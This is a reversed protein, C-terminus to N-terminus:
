SPKKELYTIKHTFIQIQFKKPIVIVSDNFATGLEEEFIFLLLSIFLLLYLLSVHEILPSWKKKKEKEQGGDGGRCKEL